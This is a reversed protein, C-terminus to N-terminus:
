SPAYGRYEESLHAVVTLFAAQQVRADTSARDMTLYENELINDNYTRYKLYHKYQESMRNFIVKGTGDDAFDLDISEGFAAFFYPETRFRFQYEDQPILPAYGGTLGADLIAKAVNYFEDVTEPPKM